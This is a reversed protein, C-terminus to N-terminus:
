IRAASEAPPLHQANLSREAIQANQFKHHTHLQPNSTCFRRSPLIEGALIVLPPGTIRTTLDLSPAVGLAQRTQLAM